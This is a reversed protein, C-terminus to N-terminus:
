QTFRKRPGRGQYLEDQQVGFIFFFLVDLFVRRSSLHVDDSYIAKGRLKEIAFNSPKGNIGGRGLFDKSRLDKEPVREQYLEDNRVELYFFLFCVM